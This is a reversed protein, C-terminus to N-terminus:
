RLEGPIKGNKSALHSFDNEKRKKKNRKMPEGTVPVASVYYLPKIAQRSLWARMNKYPGVQMRLCYLQLLPLLPLMSSVKIFYEFKSRSMPNHPTTGKIRAKKKSGKRRRAKIEGALNYQEITGHRNEVGRRFFYRCVIYRPIGPCRIFILSKM